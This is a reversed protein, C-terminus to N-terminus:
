SVIRFTNHLGLPERTFMNTQRLLFFVFNLSLKFRFSIVYISRFVTGFDAFADCDPPYWPTRLGSM